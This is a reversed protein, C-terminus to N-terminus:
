AGGGYLEDVQNSRLNTFDNFIKILKKAIAFIMFGSFLIDITTWLGSGILNGIDICPLTITTGFLTGLTFSSCTGSMGNTYAQLLQIPLTLLNTITSNSTNMNSWSTTDSSTQNTDINSDNISSNIDSTNNAIDNTNNEINTTGNSANASIFYDSGVGIFTSSNGYEFINGEISVGISNNVSVNPCYFKFYYNSLANNSDITNFYNQIFCSTGNLQVSFNSQNKGVFGYGSIDYNGSLNVSYNIYTKYVLSNSLNTYCGYYWADNALTRGSPTGNPCYETNPVLNGFTDARVNFIGIIFLAYSLLICIIIKRHKIM